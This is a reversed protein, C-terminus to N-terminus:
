RDGAAAGYEALTDSTVETAHQKLWSDTTLAADGEILTQLAQCQDEGLTCSPQLGWDAFSFRQDLLAHAVQHAYVVGAVGGFDSGAVDVVTQWPVYFGGANDAFRNV